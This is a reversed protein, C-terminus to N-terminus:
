KSALEKASDVIKNKVGSMDGNHAIFHTVLMVNSLCLCFIFFSLGVLLFGGVVDKWDPPIVDPEPPPPTFINTYM